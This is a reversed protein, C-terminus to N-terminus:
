GVPGIPTTETPVAAGDEPMVAAANADAAPANEVETTYQTIIFVQELSSIEAAPDLLAYKAVGTEEFGADVIYGMILGRGIVIIAPIWAIMYLLNLKFLSTFRVRLMEWFLQWRTEPLDEKTYDGKGSKGYYYRNMMKGFM